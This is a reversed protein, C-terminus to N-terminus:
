LNNHFFSFSPKIQLLRALMPYKVLIFTIFPNSTPKNRPTTLLCSILSFDDENNTNVVKISGTYSQLPKKPTVVTVDVTIQGDEFYFYFKHNASGMEYGDNDPHNCGSVDALDDSGGENLGDHDMLKIKILPYCDAM